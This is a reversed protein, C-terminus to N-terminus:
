IIGREKLESEAQEKLTKIQKLAEIAGQCHKVHEWSTACVM